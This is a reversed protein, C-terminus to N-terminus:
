PKTARREALAVVLPGTEITKTAALIAQKAAQECAHSVEAHSLGESQEAALEWNLSPTQFLALRNKMIAKAVTRTPLAYKLIADFRRFLAIDLIQRHNTAGVILSDSDDRELFQLFSGLVRRIEGVDNPTDRAAGLADFEDFLYVGRTGAIADFVLRLKAATEGMYKTILTDFRITFLPISLEGALASATMSKGTGPPGVLLLKRLPSLGHARIESRANQEKLVQGLREALSPELAMDSLRTKPYAVHLLNALEGRPRAIPTPAVPVTQTTRSKAEDVLKRLEHAFRGHGNRAARAAVQMAIAYFRADDGEAHSEILAKIQDAKAM